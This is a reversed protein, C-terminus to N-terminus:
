TEDSKVFVGGLGVRSCIGKILSGQAFAGPHTDDVSTVVPLLERFYTLVCVCM